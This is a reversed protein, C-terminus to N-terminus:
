RKLKIRILDRISDEDTNAYKLLASMGKHSFTSMVGLRAVCKMVQEFAYKM